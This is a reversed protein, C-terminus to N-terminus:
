ITKNTIDRLFKWDQDTLASSYLKGLISLDIIEHQVCINHSKLYTINENLRELELIHKQGYNFSIGFVECNQALLHMLLGTSDMGGSLSVVTKSAPKDAFM